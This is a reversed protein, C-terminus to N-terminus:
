REYQPRLAKLPAFEKALEQQQKWNVKPYKEAHELAKKRGETVPNKYEKMKICDNTLIYGGISKKFFSHKYNIVPTTSYVIKELESVSYRAYKDVVAWIFDQIQRGLLLFKDTNEAKTIHIKTFDFDDLKRGSKLEAIDARLIEQLHLKEIQKTYGAIVPGHPLKIFKEGTLRKGYNKIFLYEVLYALKNYHYVGIDDARYVITATLRDIPNLSTDQVPRNRKQIISSSAIKRMAEIIRDPLVAIIDWFDM